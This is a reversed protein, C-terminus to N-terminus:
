DDTIRGCVGCEAPSDQLGLTVDNCFLCRGYRAGHDFAWKAKLRWGERAAESYDADWNGGNIALAMAIAMREIYAERERDPHIPMSKKREAYAKDMAIRAKLYDREAWFGLIASIGQIM